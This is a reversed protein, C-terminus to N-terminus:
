IGTFVGFLLTLFIGFTVINQVALRKNNRWLVNQIVSGGVLYQRLHSFCKLANLAPHFEVRPGGPQDSKVEYTITSSQSNLPLIAFVPFERGTKRDTYTQALGEPMFEPYQSDSSCRFDALLAKGATGGKELAFLKENLQERARQRDADVPLTYSNVLQKLSESM